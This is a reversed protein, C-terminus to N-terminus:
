IVRATHFANTRVECSHGPESLATEHCCVGPCSMWNVTPLLSEERQWCTCFADGFGAKRNKVLSLAASVYIRAAWKSRSKINHTPPIKSRRSSLTTSLCLSMIVRRYFYSPAEKHTHASFCKIKVSLRQETATHVIFGNFNLVLYYTNMGHVPMIWDRTGGGVWGFCM